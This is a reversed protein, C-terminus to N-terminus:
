VHEVEIGLKEAIMNVAAEMAEQWAAAQTLRTRGEVTDPVRIPGYKALTETLDLVALLATRMQEFGPYVRPRPPLVKIPHFTAGEALLEDWTRQWREIEEPTAPERDALGSFPSGFPYEFARPALRWGRGADEFDTRFKDRQEATWDEPFEIVTSAPAWGDLRERIQQALDPM